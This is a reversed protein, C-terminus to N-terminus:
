LKLGSIDILYMQRGNRGHMSDICILRGDNSARPHTDCRWERGIYEQAGNYCVVKNGAGLGAKESKWGNIM